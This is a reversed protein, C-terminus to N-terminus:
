IAAAPVKRTPLQADGKQQRVSGVTTEAPWEFVELYVKELIVITRDCPSIENSVLGGPM